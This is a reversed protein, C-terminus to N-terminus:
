SWKRPHRDCRHLHRRRRDPGPIEETRLMSLLSGRRQATTSEKLPTPADTPRPRRRRSTVTRATPGGSARSGQDHRGRILRLVSPTRPEPRGAVGPERKRPQAVISIAPHLGPPPEISVGGAPRINVGKRADVVSATTHRAAGRQNLGTLRLINSQPEPRSGNTGPRRPHAPRHGPQSDTPGARRTDFLSTTVAAPWPRALPDPDARASLTGRLAQSIQPERTPCGARGPLGRGMISRHTPSCGPPTARDDRGHFARCGRRGDLRDHEGDRYGPHITRTIATSWGPPHRTPWRSRGTAAVSLMQHAPRLRASSEM